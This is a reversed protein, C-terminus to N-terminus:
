INDASFRYKVVTNNTPELSASKAASWFTTGYTTLNLSPHKISNVEAKAWASGIVKKSQYNMYTLAIEHKLATTQYTAYVSGNGSNTDKGDYVSNNYTIGGWNPTTTSAEGSWNGAAFVVSGSSVLVVVVVLAFVKVLNKKM